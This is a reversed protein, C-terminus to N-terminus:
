GPVPFVLLHESKRERVNLLTHRSVTDTRMQNMMRRQGGACQGHRAVGLKVQGDRLRELTNSENVEFHTKWEDLKGSPMCCM